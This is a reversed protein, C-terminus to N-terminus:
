AYGMVAAVSAAVHEVNSRSVGAINIRGDPACYVHHKERLTDVMAPTLDLRSFMGRQQTIWSFDTGQTRATLADALLKRLGNIRAAMAALEDSWARRLEPQSLVRDVIAAGHDPPMSWITRALRGLQGAAIGARDQSSTLAILLGTRERYLGFNKSCSVAVLMEPVQKAILRISAADRELDDGLGQYAIDVFPLLGRRACVDAIAEWQTM